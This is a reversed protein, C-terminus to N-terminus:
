DESEENTEETDKTKFTEIKKEPIIGNISSRISEKTNNGILFGAIFLVALLLTKWFGITLFLVGAAVAILGYFVGCLGNGRTTFKSFQQNM